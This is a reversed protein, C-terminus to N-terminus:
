PGVAKNLDRDLPHSELFTAEGASDCQIIGAMMSSDKHGLDLLLM